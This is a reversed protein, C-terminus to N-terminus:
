RTPMGPTGTKPQFTQKISALMGHKGSAIEADRKTAREELHAIRRTFHEQDKQPLNPMLALFAKYQVAAERLDRPNESFRELANGLGERAEANKPNAFVAAHYKDIASALQKKRSLDNAMTLNERAAERAKSVQDLGRKSREAGEPLTAAKQYAHQASDLDKIMLALDALALVQKTSNTNNILMAMQEDAEHFRNQALLAEAYAVREGDNTPTGVQSLDIQKGSLSRLKAQALRLQLNGPNMAVARDITHEAEEYDNSAIFAGTTEKQAKLYFARTLGDAAVSSRPAIALVKQYDSIADDVKELRLNDNAIRLLLEPNNPMLELGSRLEAVAHEIDGRNERADAIHLYPAANEPKIRISEQFEKIAAVTNGQSEYAKGLEYHVPASNRFQYLSTNLEKIAADAQGQQLYARGLGYHATSNGTNLAIAQRFNGIAGALDAKQLQVLGLGAFGDSYKKDLRIANNLENEAQDLRGQDKMVMAMTYHAEPSNQDASVAQNAEAEAQTLIGAKNKYYEGASSQLRGLLIQAKGAHAFSNKPDIQLAKNFEEDARDLKFEKTYANALGIRAQLDNKDRNLADHYYAEAQEYKNQRMLEDAHVVARSIRGHLRVRAVNSHTKADATQATSLMGVALTASLLINIKSRHNIM